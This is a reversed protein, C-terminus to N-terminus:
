KVLEVGVPSAFEDSLLQVDSVELEDDFIWYRYHLLLPKNFDIETAFYSGFRGYDRESYRAPKPNDKSNLRCVTYRSKSRSSGKRGKVAPLEFSVAHWPLNVHAKNADSEKEKNSWNRFEGPKGKGDPRLYYTAKATHDFVDQSARFQVGAHQPDGDLRIPGVMSTLLTRFDIVTAGNVKAVDVERNEMAFPKGDKGNWQIVSLSRGHSQTELNVVAKSIQAAQDRCHWTDASKGNYSIRNFGFFIGRHHPFKGGPGKTLLRSGDPSYVHHFVKYTEARKKPSSDDVAEYMFKVVPKGEFQLEAEASGDDHWQFKPKKYDAATATLTVSKGLALKPLIFNLRGPIKADKYDKEHLATMYIDSYRPGSLEGRIELGKGDTLMVQGPKVGDYWIPADVVANKRNYKGATVKIKFLEDGAKNSNTNDFDGASTSPLPLGFLLTCILVGSFLIRKTRPIM